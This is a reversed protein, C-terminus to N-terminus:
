SRSISPSRWMTSVRDQVDTVPGVYLNAETASSERTLTRKYICCRPRHLCYYRVKLKSHRCPSCAVATLNERRRRTPLQTETVPDCPDMVSRLLLLCLAGVNSCVSQLHRCRRKQLLDLLLLACNVIPAPTEDAATYCDQRAFPAQVRKVARLPWKSIICIHPVRLYTYAHAWCEHMARM